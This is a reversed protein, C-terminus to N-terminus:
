QMLLIKLYTGVYEHVTERINTKNGWNSKLSKLFTKKEKTGGCHVKYDVYLCATLSQSVTQSPFVLMLHGSHIYIGVKARPQAECTISIRIIKM